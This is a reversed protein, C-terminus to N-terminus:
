FCWSAGLDVQYVFAPDGADFPASDGSEFERTEFYGRWSSSKTSGRQLSAQVMRPVGFKGQYGLLARPFWKPELALDTKQHTKSFAWITTQEFLNGQWPAWSVRLSTSSSAEFVARSPLVTVVPPARKFGSRGKTARKPHCGSLAM